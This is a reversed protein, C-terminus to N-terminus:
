SKFLPISKQSLYLDVIRPFAFNGIDQKNILLFSEDNFHDLSKVYCRYFRAEILRHTLTQKYVQSAEFPIYTSNVKSLLSNIQAFALVETTKTEIMPLQYLGSWIDKSTRKQILIKDEDFIYLYHFYRHKKKLKKTKFPLESQSQHQYAYCINQMDCQECLPKKPLCQTAGFDMIAQNYDAPNAHKMADQTQEAIKKLGEKSDSAETVGFVRSIVRIVNGDVVSYPLDFAFSSIAAATYPGIGPLSIIQDYTEPFRGNHKEMVLQAAKMLNRARSYYGLGEWLKLVEDEKAKALHKVTPYAKVFKLYYPTGQAVRTQQLIIESLWIKYPDTDAKWPLDRPHALHWERLRGSFILGKDEM